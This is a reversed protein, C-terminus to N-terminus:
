DLSYRYCYKLNTLFIEAILIAPKRRSGPAATDLKFVTRYNRTLGIMYPTSTNPRLHYSPQQSLRPLFSSNNGECHVVACQSPPLRPANRPLSSRFAASDGNPTGISLKWLARLRAEKRALARQLGECPKERFELKQCIAPILEDLRVEDNDTLYWLDYLDRPENRAPDTLAVTKETAIENLSYVLVSRDEPLDTFEPYGRLVPRDELPFSLVENLTVDLKVDSGRPLPGTYRLYFTYTNAHARSDERDFAFVIGSQEHVAAYVPELRACIEEFPLAERLTFDLDESFRYDAYYCRKLATGGKFALVPRLDSVSLASLLWALCYDRELVDERIRQGRDEALRNSLLSINRQPIM